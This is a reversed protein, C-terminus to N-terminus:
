LASHIVFGDVASPPGFIGVPHQDAQVLVGLLEM